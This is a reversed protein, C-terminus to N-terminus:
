NWSHGDGGGGGGKPWGGPILINHFYAPLHEVDPVFRQEFAM